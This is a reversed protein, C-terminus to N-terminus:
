VYLVNCRSCSSLPIKPDRGFTMGFTKMKEPNCSFFYLILDIDWCENANAYIWEALPIYSIIKRCIGPEVALLGEWFSSSIKIPGCTPLRDYLSNRILMPTRFLEAVSLANSSKSLDRKSVITDGECDLLILKYKGNSKTLFDPQFARMESRLLDKRYNNTLIFPDNNIKQTSTIEEIVTSTDSSGLTESENEDEKQLGNFAESVAYDHDSTEITATTHPGERDLDLLNVSGDASTSEDSTDEESTSFSLKTRSLDLQRKM